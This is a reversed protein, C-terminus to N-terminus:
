RRKRAVSAGEGNGNRPRAHRARGQSSRAEGNANRASPPSDSNGGYRRDRRGYAALAENIDRESFDPWCTTTFFYEAYASQWILFNSIRMDGGTRIILDPDPLDATYLHQALVDEDVAEAPIGAAIIGRVADVLEARGGYNFAICVTMQENQRTLEAADHIQRRLRPPLVDLRGICRLRVGAEHLPRVERRITRSLLAILADTERPSRKWNETSFAYLTLYRVGRDGLAQIVQRINETGARHGATRSLGRRAAWRGNADMIIAVHRPARSAASRAPVPAITTM